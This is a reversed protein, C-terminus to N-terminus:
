FERDIVDLLREFAMMWATAEDQDEARALEIGLEFAALDVRWVARDPFYHITPLVAADLVMQKITALLVHPLYQPPVLSLQEAQATLSPTALRRVITLYQELQTTANM